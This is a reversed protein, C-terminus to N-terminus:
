KLMQEIAAIRRSAARENGADRDREAAAVLRDAEAMRREGTQVSIRRSDIKASLAARVQVQLRILDPYRAGAMAYTEIAANVCQAHPLYNGVRMPYQRNCAERATQLDGIVQPPAVVCGALLVTVFITMTLKSMFQM